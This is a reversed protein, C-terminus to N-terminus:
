EPFRFTLGVVARLYDFHGPAVDADIGRTWSPEDNEFSRFYRLEGRLGIRESFFATGGGGINWGFEHVRSEFLEEGALGTEASVQLVGIGGSVFPRIRAGDSYQFISPVGLVGNAMFTAVHSEGDFFFGDHEGSFFDPVLSFDVEWGLAEDDVRGFAAGFLLQERGHTDRGFTSGFTPMVLWDASASAPALLGAALAATCLWQKM